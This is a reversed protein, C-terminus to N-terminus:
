RAGATAAGTAIPLEFVRLANAGMILDVEEQTFSCGHEPAIEPLSRIFAAWDIMIGRDGSFRRGGIHDSGFLIKHPGVEDRMRALTKVVRGPDEKADESWMSIELYTLPHNAAVIAAEHAWINHGAHALSITLDRYRNQVDAVYLPNAYHGMWPYPVVATHIVVPIELEMCKEYLPWCIEDGPKIGVPPYIKLGRMGHDKVGRELQYVADPRRPDVGGFAFFRGPYKEALEGYHKMMDLPSAGSFDGVLVSWDLTLCICADIGAQDMESILISGDPDVMGPEIKELIEAPNGPPDQKSAWLKASIQHWCPPYFGWSQCHVHADVQPKPDSTSASEM